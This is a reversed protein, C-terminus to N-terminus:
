RYDNWNEFAADVAGKLEDTAKNFAKAAVYVALGAFGFVAIAPLVKGTAIKIKEKKSVTVPIRKKRSRKNIALSPM